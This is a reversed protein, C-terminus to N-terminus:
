PRPLKRFSERKVILNARHELVGKRVLIDRLEENTLVDKRYADIASDIELELDEIAREILARQVIWDVERDSYYAAKLKQRLTNEDMLGLRFQRLYISKLATREDLLMNMWEAESVLDLWEPHVGRWKMLEKHKMTDILGWRLMWRADIRGPIEYSLESMIKLDSKEIGPRPEPKYDHWVIYKNFEDLSIIGRWFATRLDGFSPLVWHAEWYSKAWYESLGQKASWTIFDEPTIIEKV